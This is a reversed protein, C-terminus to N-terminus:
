RLTTLYEVVDRIERPSLFLHAPPMPSPSNERRAIDATPVRVTQGAGTEVAVAGAADDLLRGTVTHGSRLTLTVYGFGPAIRASPEVLALLLDERSLRSGVGSLHPGANAGPVEVSHCQTCQAAASLTVRRGAAADGGRLLERHAALADGAPRAAQQRAVGSQLTPSASARAVELVELQIEAAVGGSPLRDLLDALVREAEDGGLEGLTVVARQREAASGSRVVADLMQVATAPPLGMAPILELATMRVAPDADALAAAVAGEAGEVGVAHLARLAAMRVEPAADDRVRALLAPRAARLDLRAITELVGIKVAPGASGLLPALLTELAERAPAADREVPGHYWGDVRDLVSPRGWVGLAQLAEVRMPDEADDQMAFGALRHAAESSGLRLNANIARRILPEGTFRRDDLVRALAPLAADIAGDDNIARAAEAVVYEDADALFRAVEASGMRRLAVVAAVRLALSPHDALAAIPAADGIRALALTGAHRLYVDADDNAELMAILPHLAPRHSLRGLAEAAFFRPRPAPDRLMGILMSGAPAHRVDGLMKAAQARVEADADRLFPLLSPAHRSDRRALQGLGWLAHLRALGGDRARAEALLSGREGREVLEFQAKSRVRMDAHRM